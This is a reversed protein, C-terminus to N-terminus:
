CSETLSLPVASPRPWPHEQGGEQKSASRELGGGQGRPACSVGATSNTPPPSPMPGTSFVTSPTDLTRQPPAAAPAGAQREERQFAPGQAGKTPPSSPDSGPAPRSTFCRRHPPSTPRLPESQPKVDPPRSAPPLLPGPLSLALGLGLGASVAAQEGARAGGAPSQRATGAPQSRRACCAGPPSAASSTLLRAPPRALNRRPPSPPCPSWARQPSRRAPPPRTQLNPPLAMRPRGGPRCRGDKCAAGGFAHVHVSVHRFIDTHACPM